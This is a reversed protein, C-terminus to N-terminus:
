AERLSESAIKNLAPLRIEFCSQSVERNLVIDGGHNQIIGKSISLGLGTGKGVEKTSYFPEFIRTELEASIGTGSDYVRCVAFGSLLESELKVWKLNSETKSTTAADAANSLINIIAQEIEIPDCSIFCNDQLDVKLQVNEMKFKLEIITLAEKIIQSLDYEGRTTTESTRSFKRLGKVIKEIRLSAHTISEVKRKLQDPDKPSNKLVECTARIIALPYNIEHAMGAALEGLSAMKAAQASKMMEFKLREHVKGLETVDQITGYIKTFKGSADTVPSGISEVQKASGSADVFDYRGRFPQGEQICLEIDKTLRERDHPAYFNLGMIKDTPMSKPISHIAYVGDTWLTKGTKIDLEWAGIQAHRQIDLSIRELEKMRTIDFHTGIFRFPKGDKDFEAIRGRDLIWVWHGDAHRMRHINEYVPTEGRLYRNIDIFCQDLDEPHVLSQWTDLAHPVTEFDIGIMQCWRRDFYVENTDLRWDWAGLGAGELIYEFRQIAFSSSQPDLHNFSNKNNKEM